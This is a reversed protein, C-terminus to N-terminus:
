IKNQWDKFIKQSKDMLRAKDEERIQTETFLREYETTLKLLKRHYLNVHGYAYEEFLARIYDYYEKKIEKEFELDKGIFASLGARFENDVRKFAM